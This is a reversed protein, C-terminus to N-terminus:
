GTLNAKKQTGYGVVVIEELSENDRILSVNTILNTTTLEQKIFGLYTISIKDGIKGSLVFDGRDTSQVSSQNQLNVITAGAIPEGRDDTIRGSLTEQQFVAL